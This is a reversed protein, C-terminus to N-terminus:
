LDVEQFAGPGLVQTDVQGTLALVPAATSTRTGSVQSCTPPARAQSRFVRQRAARSSETPPCRSRPRAGRPARRFLPARRSRTPAQTSRRPRSELSGRNRFRIASGLQGHDRGHCRLHHACCWTPSTTVDFAVYIGDDRSEVPYTQVGDDYGGPPKGTLPHYDWGHWPCRLFGKEISGEGLPGKQHPCENDLAAYQGQYHTMCVTALGCTVPKVRGDPLEDLELAKYWVRMSLDRYVAYPTGYVACLFSLCFAFACLRLPAFHAGEASIGSNRLNRCEQRFPHTCWDLAALRLSSCESAARGRRRPTKADQGASRPQPEGARPSPGGLPARRELRCLTPRFRIGYATHRIGSRAAIGMREHRWERTVSM